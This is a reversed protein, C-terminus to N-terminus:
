HEARDRLWAALDVEFGPAPFLAHNSGAYLHCVVSRNGARAMREALRAACAEVPLREDREGFGLFVPVRLREFFVAPDLDHATWRLLSGAVGAPPVQEPLALHAAWPARRARELGQALMAPDVGEGRSAAFLQVLLARAEELEDGRVGAAELRRASQYLDVEHLPVGPPSLALVFAAEPVRTAVIASIWAGQSLGGLGVRAPDIGDRARLFRVAAEADAVVALFDARSLWALDVPVPRRDYILVALGQRAALDALFRLYDRGGGSTAHFLALAPHPGEDPPVLLSGQVSRREGPFSVELERYPPAPVPGVLRFALQVEQGDM